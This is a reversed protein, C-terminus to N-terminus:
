VLLAFLHVFLLVSTSRIDDLFSRSFCIVIVPL